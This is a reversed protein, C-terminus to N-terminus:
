FLYELAVSLFSNDQAIEDKAGLWYPNITNSAYKVYQRERGLALSARIKPTILRSAQLAIQYSTSPDIKLNTPTFVTLLSEFIGFRAGLSVKPTLAYLYNASVEPGLTAVKDYNSIQQTAGDSEAAAFEQYSLGANLLLVSRDSVSKRWGLALGAGLTTVVGDVTNLTQFDFRVSQSWTSALKSHTATVAVDSSYAQFDTEAPLIHDYIKTEYQTRTLRYVFSASWGEPGDISKHLEHLFEARATRDGAEVTFQAKEAFSDDYLAAHGVLAVRYTGGPWDLPFAFTVATSGPLDLINVWNKTTPDLRTISLDTTEIRSDKKWNLERVFTNDPRIFKPKPLQPGELTFDCDKGKDSPLGDESTASVHWVYTKAVPLSLTALNHPVTKDILLAGAPNLVQINYLSAGGVTQWTFEVDSKTHSQEKEQINQHLSPTVTRPAELLVDFPSPESWVGHVERDDLARIKMLYHGVRVKGHWDPTQVKFSYVSANPTLPKLQLEYGAAEPVAEWELSVSREFAELAWAPRAFIIMLLLFGSKVSM